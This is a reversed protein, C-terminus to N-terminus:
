PQPFSAPQEIGCSHELIEHATMEQWLCFGPSMFPDWFPNPYWDPSDVVRRFLSRAAVAFSKGTEERRRRSKPKSMPTRGTLHKVLSKFQRVLTDASSSRPRPQALEVAYALQDTVQHPNDAEPEDACFHIEPADFATAPTPDQNAQELIPASRSIEDRVEPTTKAAWTSAEIYDLPECTGSVIPMESSVGCGKGVARGKVENAGPLVRKRENVSPQTARRGRSIDDIGIDLPVRDKAIILERAQELTPLRDRSLGALRNRIEAAPVGLIRKGLAHMGGERDVVLFDRSDGRALVLGQGALAAEFSRGCDSREFCDRITERHDRLDIGLRRSQEEERRTPAYAIPGKRANPVETLGFHRELERSVRKLREKFFPLPRATLSEHDMRSWAVHMHSEGTEECIHFAIARPQNDLGLSQEIADATYSWQNADLTEGDPNRVSVHFFPFVCKSGNAMVHVSRFAEVLGTLAFGRLELLEAREGDKGTILYRALRAGHAHPVGKAIM